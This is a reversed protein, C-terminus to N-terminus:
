QQKCSEKLKAAEKKERPKVCAPKDSHRKTPAVFAPPTQLPCPGPVSRGTQANEKRQFTPDLDEAVNRFQQQHTAMATPSPPPFQPSCAERPSLLGESGLRDRQRDFDAGEEYPDTVDGDEWGGDGRDDLDGSRRKARIEQKQMYHALEEDQAVQAVTFDGEPYHSQSPAASPPRRRISQEEEAQLRHALEEDLLVQELEGLDLTARTRQLGYGAGPPRGSYWLSLSRQPLVRVRKEVKRRRRRRRREVEEDEEDETTSTEEWHGQWPERSTRRGALASRHRRGEARPEWRGEERLSHVRRMTEGRAKGAGEEWRGRGRPGSPGEEEGQKLRSEQRPSNAFPGVRNAQHAEGHCRTRNAVRVSERGNEDQYVRRARELQYPVGDAVARYTRNRCLEGSVPYSSVTRSWVEREQSGAHNAEPDRRSAGNDGPRRGDDQFRVRRRADGPRSDRCSRSCHRVRRSEGDESARFSEARCAQAGHQTRGHGEHASHHRHLRKGQGGNQQQPGRLIRELRYVPEFLDEESTHSLYGQESMDNKILKVVDGWGGTSPGARGSFSASSGRDRHVVSRPTLERPLRPLPGRGGPDRYDEYVQRRGEYRDEEYDSTTPSPFSDQDSWEEEEEEEESILSPAPQPPNPPASTNERSDTSHSEYLRRVRLEEEEQIQKAVEEDEEERRRAEEARRQLDEQIRRAYESDLVELQQTTQRHLVSARQQEEDQLQKAVRLDNQVLQNREVNSSYFQEIEQEQLNHALAGDELVAFCQCVEQVRPLNTQDVEVDAM